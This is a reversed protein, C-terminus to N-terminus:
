DIPVVRTRGRLKRAFLQLKVLDVERKRSLAHLLLTSPETGSEQRNVEPSPSPSLKGASPRRGFGPVAPTSKYDDNRHGPLPEPVPPRFVPAAKKQARVTTTSDPPEPSKLNVEPTDGANTETTRPEPVRRNM